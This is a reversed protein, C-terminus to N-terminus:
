MSRGCDVILLQGTTKTTGRALYYVTDAVDDPSVIEPMPLSLVREQIAEETM